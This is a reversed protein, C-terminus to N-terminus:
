CHENICRCLIINVYLHFRNRFSSEVLDYASVRKKIVRRYDNYLSNSMGASKFIYEEIYQQYTLGSVKEIIYGLIFYGSNSYKWSTGPEFDMKSSKFLNIFDSPSFDINRLSDLNVTEQFNRIGSTHTLLNEISIYYGQTPYDPLYTNISDKLNIKEQEALQMIAIATFQKTISSIEFVMDAEVPVNLELDALGFANKYIIRDKCSVLVACGPEYPKFQENFISDLKVILQKNQYPEVQANLLFYSGLLISFLYIKKM